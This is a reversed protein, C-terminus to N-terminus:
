ALVSEKTGGFGGVCPGCYDKPMYSIVDSDSEPVCYTQYGEKTSYHCVNVFHGDAGCPYDMASCYPSGKEVGRGESAVNGDKLAENLDKTGKPRDDTLELVNRREHECKSQCYVKFTYLVTPKDEIDDGPHCCDPVKDKDSSDVVSEDVFWIDVITLSYESATMCHATVNVPEPCYTFPSESFCKTNGSVAAPFQYYMAFVDSEFPNVINFTVTKDDQSVISIPPFPFATAADAM